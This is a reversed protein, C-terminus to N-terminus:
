CAVVHRMHLRRTIRAQARTDTIELRTQMGSWMNGHCQHLRRMRRAQTGRAAACPSWLSLCAAPRAPACEEAIRAFERLDAAFLRGAPVCAGVWVFGAQKQAHVGLVDRRKWVDDYQAAACAASEEYPPPHM